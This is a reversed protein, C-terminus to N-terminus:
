AFPSSFLLRSQALLMQTQRGAVANSNSPPATGRVPVATGFSPQTEQCQRLTPRPMGACGAMHCTCDHSPVATVVPVWAAEQLAESARLLQFQMGLGCAEAPFVALSVALDRTQQGHKSDM